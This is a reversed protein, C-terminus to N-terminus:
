VAPLKDLLGNLATDEGTPTQGLDKAAKAAQSAQEMMMQQAQAQKRQQRMEAAEDDSRLMKPDAGALDAYEELMADFNVRDLVEPNFNALNGAFMATREIAQTGVAKQAQALLSTYEVKIEQGQIERPPEPLRGNRMLIDFVRDVLPSLFESNQRELVPGLIALKEEHRRAVETATMNKDELIMLFLDNFFGQRIRNEVERIESAVAGIDPTIQVTSRIIENEKANVYNQANPLLSLRGKFSSPINMPPNVVKDISALKDRELKQLMKIDGLMEMGPCNSGYADEGVVEWRPFMVPKTNFGSEKLFSDEPAGDEWYVSAWPMNEAGAKNPDYDKRPFIANIVRVQADPNKEAMSRTQPTCNEAGFQEAVTRATMWYWRFGTDVSGAHDTALTYSGVTWPVCRIMKKPDEYVAFPGTGFVVQELFPTHVASYFNSRTFVGYMVQQVDHLWRRAPEWDNMDEDWLSLKLWPLSHPVLGGKLGSVAISVARSATGNIIKSHKYKDGKGAQTHKDVFRGHRPLIFDALDKWHSHWDADDSDRKLKYRRKLRRLKESTIM